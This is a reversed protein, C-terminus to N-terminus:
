PTDNESEEIEDRLHDLFLYLQTDETEKFNGFKGGSIEKIMGIMDPLAKSDAGGPKFITPYQKCIFSRCGEYNFLIANRTSRSLRKMHRANARVRIDTLPERLDNGLSNGGPRRYLTAILQDLFTEDNTKKYAAYYLESSRFEKITSSSLRNDPGQFRRCLIKFSPIVWYVLNNGGILFKLTEVLQYQQVPNLKFFIRKPINYFLLAVLLLANDISIDTAILKAWIVLQKSTIENWASPATYSKGDLTISNM